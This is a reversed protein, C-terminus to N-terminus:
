KLMAKKYVIGLGLLILIGLLWVKYPVEKKLEKEKTVTRLEQKFEARQNSNLNLNGASLSSDLIKQLHNAKGSLRLLSAEGTFGNSLTYSFNGRPYIETYFETSSSDQYNSIIIKYANQVLEQNAELKGSRRYLSDSRNLSKEKFLTCASIILLMIGASMFFINLRKSFAPIRMNMTTNM